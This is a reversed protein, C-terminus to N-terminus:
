LRQSPTSSSTLQSSRSIDGRCPLIFAQVRGSANFVIGKRPKESTEGSQQLSHKAHQLALISRHQMRQM